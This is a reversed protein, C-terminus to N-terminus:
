CKMVEPANATKRQDAMRQLFQFDEPTDADMVAGQDNLELDVLGLQRLAGRLGDEGEYRQVFRAAEMSLFVPHGGRGRWVPRVAQHGGRPLTLLTELSFLPVDGPTIFVGDYDKELASLGLKISDLMHTQAYHENVIIQVNGKPFHAMLSQANHGAVLIIRKVGAAEFIDTVHDIMAKGALDLLPKFAKMRSSLGAAPIVAAYEPM